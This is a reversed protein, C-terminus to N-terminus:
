AADQSFLDEVARIFEDHNVVSDGDIDLMELIQEADRKDFLNEAETQDINGDKNLDASTLENQVDRKGILGLKSAVALGTLIKRGRIRLWRRRRRRGETPFVILAMLLFVVLLRMKLLREFESSISENNAPKYLLHVIVKVSSTNPM